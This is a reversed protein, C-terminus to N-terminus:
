STTTDPTMVAQATNQKEHLDEAFPRPKLSSGDTWINAGRVNTKRYNMQSRLSVRLQNNPTKTMTFTTEATLM